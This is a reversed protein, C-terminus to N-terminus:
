ALVEALVMCFSQFLYFLPNLLSSMMMMMNMMLSVALLGRGGDAIRWRGDRDKELHQCDGAGHNEM